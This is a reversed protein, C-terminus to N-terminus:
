REVTERQDLFNSKIKGYVDTVKIQEGETAKTESDIFYGIGDHEGNKIAVFAIYPKFDKISIDGNSIEFNDQIDNSYTLEVFLSKGRNDITFIDIQDKVSKFGKLLAEAEKADSESDFTVLFDRSMRPMVETYNNCGIKKLFDAHEKLRWYFTMHPHPKQHLGTALM